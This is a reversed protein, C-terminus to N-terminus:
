IEKIRKLDEEYLREVHAKIEKLMEVQKENSFTYIAKAMERSKIIHEKPPSLAETISM